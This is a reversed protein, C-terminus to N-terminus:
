LRASVAATLTPELAHRSESGTCALPLTWTWDFWAFLLLLCSRLVSLERKRLRKWQLMIRFAREAKALDVLRHAPALELVPPGSDPLACLPRYDSSAWM